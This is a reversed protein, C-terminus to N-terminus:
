DANVPSAGGVLLPGARKKEEKKQLKYLAILNLYTSSRAVARRQPAGREERSEATAQLTPPPRSAAAHPTRHFVDERSTRATSVHHHRRDHLSHRCPLQEVFVECARCVSVVSVVVVAAVTVAAAATVFSM